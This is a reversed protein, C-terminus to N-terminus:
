KLGPHHEISRKARPARSRARASEAQTKIMHCERCLGQANFVTDDGGEFVPIIHDVETSMNIGCHNCMLYQALAARRVTKSFGQTRPTWVM